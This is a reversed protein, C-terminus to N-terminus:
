LRLARSVLRFDPAKPTPQVQQGLDVVLARSVLRFDPAKPTPQMQQGLDVVLAWPRGLAWPSAAVVM